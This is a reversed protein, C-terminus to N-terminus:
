RLSLLSCYGVPLMQSMPQHMCVSEMCASARHHTVQTLMPVHGTQCCTLPHPLRAPLVKAESGHRRISLAPAIIRAFTELKKQVSCFSM